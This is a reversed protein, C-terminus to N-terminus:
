YEPRKLIEATIIAKRWDINAWESEVEVEQVESIQDFGAGHLRHDTTKDYDVMEETYNLETDMEYYQVEEKELKDLAEVDELTTYKNPEKDTFVLKEEIKPTIPKQIKQEGLLNQLIDELTKPQTPAPKKYQTQSTQNFGVNKKPPMNTGAKKRKKLISSLIAVGVIVAYVIVTTNNM